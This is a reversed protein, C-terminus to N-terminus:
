PYNVKFEAELQECVTAITRQMEPTNSKKNYDQWCFDITEQDTQKANKPVPPRTNDQNAAYIVLAIILVAVSRFIIKPINV